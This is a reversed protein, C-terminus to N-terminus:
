TESVCSGWLLCGINVLAFVLSLSGIDHIGATSRSNNNHWGVRWYGAKPVVTSANSEEHCYANEPCIECSQAFLPKHTSRFTGENCHAFAVTSTNESYSDLAPSYLSATFVYPHVTTGPHMNVEFSARVVQDAGNNRLRTQSIEFDKSTFTDFLTHDKAQPTM